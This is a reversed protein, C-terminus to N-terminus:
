NIQLATDYNFNWILPYISGHIKKLEEITIWWCMIMTVDCQFASICFFLCFFLCFYNIRLVLFISLYHTIIDYIKIYIPTTYKLVIGNRVIISVYFPPNFPLKLPKWKSEYFWRKFYIMSSIFGSYLLCMFLEYRNTWCTCCCSGKIYTPTDTEIIFSQKPFCIEWM